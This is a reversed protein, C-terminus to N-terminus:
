AIKTETPIELPEPHPTSLYRRLSEHQEATRLKRRGDPGELFIAAVVGLAEDWCLRDEYTDGIRVTYENNERDADIEIKFKDAMM